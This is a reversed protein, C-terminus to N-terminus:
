ENSHLLGLIEQAIEDITKKDTEVEFSKAEEYFPMRKELMDSIHEVSMDGALLPRSDDHRVREYITDPKASLLM